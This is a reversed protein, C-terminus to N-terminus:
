PRVDITEQSLMAESMKDDALGVLETGLKQMLTIRIKVSRTFNFTDCAIKASSTFPYGGIFGLCFDARVDSKQGILVMNIVTDQRAILRANITLNLGCAYRQGFLVGFGVNFKM